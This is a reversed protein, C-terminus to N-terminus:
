LSKLTSIISLLTSTITSAKDLGIATTAVSRSDASAVNSDASAAIAIRADNRSVKDNAHNRGGLLGSLRKSVTASIQIFQEIHAIVSSANHEPLHEVIEDHFSYKPDSMLFGLLVSLYGAAVMADASSRASHCVVFAKTLLIILSIRNTCQCKPFCRKSLRCQPTQFVRSISVICSSDSDVINSLLASTVLLVDYRLDGAESALVKRTPSFDASTGQSASKPALQQSAIAVNKAVIDLGDCAIFRACFSVNNNSLNVLLQLVFVLTELSNILTREMAQQAVKQQSTALLSLLTPICTSIKLVEDQSETSATTCFQMMELELAISSFTPHLSVPEKAFICGIDRRSGLADTKAAKSWNSIYDRQKGSSNGAKQKLDAEIAVTISPAGKREEPLDFDMWLDNADDSVGGLYSTASPYSSKAQIQADYPQEQRPCAYKPISWTFTREAILGLCGSEYMENRLLPAMALFAADDKRTFGHLTALALNYTSVPLNEGILGHERVFACIYAVCHHREITEFSGKARLTLIDEEATSQLIEAVIELAQREFVMMQMITPRSFAVAITVMATSLVLLPDHRRVRHMSLLLTSLDQKSCLLEECFERDMLRELLHLCPTDMHGSAHASFEQLIDSLQLKFPEASTRRDCNGTSDLRTAITSVATNNHLRDTRNLGGATDGTTSGLEVYELAPNSTAGSFSPLALGRSFDIELGCRGDEYGEEDQSRGYTYVVNQNFTRSQLRKLTAVSPGEQENMQPIKPTRVDPVQLEVANDSDCDSCALSSSLRSSKSGAVLRGPTSPPSSSSPEKSGQAKRRQRSFVKRKSGTPKNFIPSSSLLDGMDWASVRNSEPSSASAGNVPKSSEVAEHPASDVLPKQTLIASACKNEANYARKHTIQADVLSNSKRVVVCMVDGKSTTGRARNVQMSKSVKGMQKKPMQAPASLHCENFEARQGVVPNSYEQSAQPPNSITTRAVTTVKCVRAAKTTNAAGVKLGSSSIQATQKEIDDARRVNKDATSQAKRRPQRKRGNKRNGTPPNNAVDLASSPLGDLEWSYKTSELIARSSLDHNIVKSSEYLADLRSIASQPSREPQVSDSTGNARDSYRTRKLSADSDDTSDSLESGSSKISGGLKASANSGNSLSSRLQVLSHSDNPRPVPQALRRATLTKRGYTTGAPKRRISAFPDAM